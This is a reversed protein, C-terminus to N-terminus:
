KKKTTKREESRTCPSATPNELPYKQLETSYIGHTAEHNCNSDSESAWTRIGAFDALRALSNRRTTTPRNPLTQLSETLSFPPAKRTRMRARMPAKVNHCCHKETPPHTPVCSSTLTKRNLLFLGAGWLRAQNRTIQISNAHIYRIVQRNIICRQVHNRMKKQHATSHGNYKQWSFCGTLRIRSPRKVTAMLKETPKVHAKVLPLWRM